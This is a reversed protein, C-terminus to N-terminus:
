YKAHRIVKGNIRPRNSASKELEVGSFDKERTGGVILHKPGDHLAPSLETQLHEFLSLKGTLM